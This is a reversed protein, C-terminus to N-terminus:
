RSCTPRSPATTSRPSSTRSRARLSTSRARRPCRGRRSRAASKQAGTSIDDAAATLQRSSSSVGEVSQDVSGLAQRLGELAVNIARAMQAFQDHGDAAMSQTLDREAVRGLVRNADAISRNVSRAVTWGLVLAILVFMGAVVALQAKRVTVSDAAEGIQAAVLVNAREVAGKIEQTQERYLETLRGHAIKEAKAGDGARVAAALDGLALEFFARGPASARALVLDRAAPDTLNESWFTLRTEFDTNLRELAEIHADIEASETETVLHLAEFYAEVVFVPPPLIDAILDKAQSIYRYESNELEAPMARFALGLFLAFGAVFASVLAILKARVTM